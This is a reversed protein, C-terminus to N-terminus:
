YRLPEETASDVTIWVPANPTKKVPETPEPLLTEKPTNKQPVVKEVPLAQVSQTQITRTQISQTQTPKAQPKAQIPKFQEAVLPSPAASLPKPLIPEGGAAQKVEQKKPQSVPQSVLKSKNDNSEPKEKKVPPYEFNQRPKSEVSPQLFPDNSLPIPLNVRSESQKPNAESAKIENIKIDNPNAEAHQSLEASKALQTSKESEVSEAFNKSDSSESL